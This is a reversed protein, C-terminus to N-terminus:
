EKIRTASWTIKTALLQHVGAGGAIGKMEDIQSGNVTESLSLYGTVSDDLFQSGSTADAIVFSPKPSQIYTGFFDSNEKGEVTITGDENFSVEFSYRVILDMKHTIKWKGSLQNM